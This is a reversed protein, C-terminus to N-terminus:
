NLNKEELIREYVVFHQKIVDEIAFEREAKARSYKGFKIRLGEDDILTKLSKVLQDVDGVHIMYGNKGDEVCETCGPADTTIIPRGIACAEILSKPLGENYSPLVTIDSMAHTAVMDKQNGIYTFYGPEEMGKMEEESIGYVSDKDCKGAFIFEIKGYYEDKLRRSVEILEDVGKDHLIRAPFLIRAKRGHIPEPAHYSFKELDIGAGRIYYYHSDPCIKMNMVKRLDDPNQCIIYSTKSRTFMKMATTITWKIFNWKESYFDLGLGAVANVTYKYGFLKAVISGDLICRLPVHHIITPKVKRYASHIQHIVKITNIVGGKGRPYDVSIFEIGNVKFIKRAEPGSSNSVVYVKWGRKIAEEAIPLRHSLFYWDRNVLFLLKIQDKSM